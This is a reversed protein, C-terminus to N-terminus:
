RSGKQNKVPTTLAKESEWGLKKIRQYATSYEIGYEECWQALCKTTEGIEIMLNNTKNRAQEEKTIWKCNNPEYGKNVDVREISLGRKYGNDLAWEFFTSSDHWEDCVSIGRGGYNKYSANNENECRSIMAWWVGFLPSKSMGHTTAREHSKENRLCGCSKTNGSRLSSAHVVCENGCQCKCLWRTKGGKSDEARSMATLRGFQQGTLDVFRMRAGIM